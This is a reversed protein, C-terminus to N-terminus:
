LFVLLLSKEGKVMHDRVFDLSPALVVVLLAM